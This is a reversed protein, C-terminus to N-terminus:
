KELMGKFCLMHMLYVQFDFYSIQSSVEHEEQKKGIKNLHNVFIYQWKSKM